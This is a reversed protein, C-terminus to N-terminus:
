PQASVDKQRAEPYRIVQIVRLTWWNGTAGRWQMSQGEALGILASGLPSL